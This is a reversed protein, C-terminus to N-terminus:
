RNELFIKLQLYQIIIDNCKQVNVIIFMCKLNNLIKLKPLNFLDM